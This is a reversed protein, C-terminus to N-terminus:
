NNYTLKKCLKSSFAKTIETSNVKVLITQHTIKCFRFINFSYSPLLFFSLISLCKFKKLDNSILNLKYWTRAYM